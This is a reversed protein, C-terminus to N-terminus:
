KLRSNRLLAARAEQTLRGEPAGASLTRLLERSADSNIRELVTLARIVRLQSGSPAQNLRNLLNEIRRQFELSGKSKLAQRLVAETADGMSELQRTAKSRVGFNDSDLDAILPEIRTRDMPPLPYLQKALFLVVDNGGAAMRAVTRYALRADHGALEEWARNLEAANLKQSGDPEKTFRTLDWTLLTCDSNGTVLTKGDPSFAVCTVPNYNGSFDIVKKGSAIDWVITTRDDKGRNGICRKDGHTSVLFRGDPSFALVQSGNPLGVIQAVESGSATEWIRLTHHDLVYRGNPSVDMSESTAFYHGDQSFVATWYYVQGYQWGEKRPIQITALRKGHPMQWLFLTNPTFNSKSAVQGVLTRADPALAAFKLFAGKELLEVTKGDKAGWSAVSGWPSVATLNKGDLTFALAQSWYPLKEHITKQKGTATDWLRISTDTGASALTKGDPAFALAVIAANHGTLLHLPKGTNAQWLRLTNDYSGSAILSGDPSVAACSIQAVHRPVPNVEKGSDVDWIQLHAAGPWFDVRLSETALLKGDSSFCLFRTAQPLKRELRRLEKGTESDRFAAIGEQNITVLTKGDPAFLFSVYQGPVPLQRGSRVDAVFMKDGRGPNRAWAALSGDRSLIVYDRDNRIERIKVARAVDWRIVQGPTEENYINCASASTLHKGDSSFALAAIRCQHGEVGVHGDLKAVSQNRAIDWLIIRPTKGVTVSLAAMKGNPAIAFREVPEPLKIQGAKKKGSAPDWFILSYNVVGALTKGDPTFAINGIHAKGDVDFDRVNKGSGADWFQLVNKTEINNGEMKVVVSGAVAITRKDVSFAAHHIGGDLRKRLSGLRAIAGVPLPDGHYDRHATASTSPPQAESSSLGFLFFVASIPLLTRFM